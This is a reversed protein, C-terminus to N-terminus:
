EFLEECAAQAQFMEVNRAALNRQFCELMKQQTECAVFRSSPQMEVQIAVLQTLLARMNELRANMAHTDQLAQVNAVVTLQKCLQLFITM